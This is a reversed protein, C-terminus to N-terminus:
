RRTALPTFLASAVCAITIRSRTPLPLTAFSLSTSSPTPFPLHAPIFYDPDDAPDRLDGVRWTDEHEWIAQWHSEIQRFDYATVPALGSAPM